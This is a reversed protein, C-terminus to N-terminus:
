NVAYAYHVGFGSPDYGKSGVRPSAVVYLYIESGASQAPISGTWTDQAQASSQVTMPVTNSTGFTPDLAWVLFVSGVSGGPATQTAVTVTDSHSAPGGGTSPANSGTQVLAVAGSSGAASTSGIASFPGSCVGAFCGYACACGAEVNGTDVPSGTDAPASADDGEESASESSGDDSAPSSDEPVPGTEVPGVPADSSGSGDGAGPGSPDSGAFWDCADLALGLLCPVVLASLGALAWKRM